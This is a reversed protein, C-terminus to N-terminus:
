RSAFYDRLARAEDQAEELTEPGLRPQIGRELLIERMQAWSVGALDAAKALSLGGTEYRHVALGIRADPRARLLHRLADRIVEEESSYLRAEVLDRAEPSRVAATDLPRPDASESMHKKEAPRLSPRKVRKM